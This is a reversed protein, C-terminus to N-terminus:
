FGIEDKPGIFGIYVKHDVEYPYYYLRFPEKGFSWKIHLSFVQGGIGPCDFTRLMITDAIRKPTDPSNELGLKKFDFVGANWNKTFQNLRKLKENILKFRDDHVSLHEIQNWVSDCFVLSPFLITRANWFNQISNFANQVNCNAKFQNFTYLDIIQKSKNISTNSFDFGKFGNCENLYISDFTAEDPIYAEIPKFSDFLKYTLGIFEKNLMNPLDYCYGHVTQYNWFESHRILNDNEKNKSAVAITLEQIGNEFDSISACNLAEHLLFFNNM